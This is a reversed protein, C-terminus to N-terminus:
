KDDLRHQTNKVWTDVEPITPKTPRHLFAMAPMWSPRHTRVNAVWVHRVGAACLTGLLRLMFVFGMVPLFMVFLLGMIPALLLMLPLPLPLTVTPETTM